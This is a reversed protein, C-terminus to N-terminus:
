RHAERDRYSDVGTIHLRLVKQTGFPDAIQEILCYLTVKPKLMSYIYAVHNQDGFITFNYEGPPVPQSADKIALKGINKYKNFDFIECCIKKTEKEIKTPLDFMGRDKTEMLIDPREDQVKGASIETIKQPYLMHTLNQYYPLAQQGIQYVPANYNHIEDGIKVITQGDSKFTYQPQKNNQVANCIIKLFNFTERTHDWINQPGLATFMPLTLQTGQIIIDFITTLSKQRFEVVNIFYRQRDKYSIRKSNISVLYSKDVITQFSDLATLWDMPEIEIEIGIKKADAQLTQDSETSENNSCGLSSVLMVALLVVLIRKM